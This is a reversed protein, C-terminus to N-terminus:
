FIKRAIRIVRVLRLRIFSKMSPLIKWTEKQVSNLELVLMQRHMYIMMLRMIVVPMLGLMLVEVIRVDVEVARM